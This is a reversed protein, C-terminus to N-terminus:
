PGRLRGISHADHRRLIGLAGIRAVRRGERGPHRRAAGVLDHHDARAVAAGDHRGAQGLPVQAHGQELPPALPGGVGQRHRQGVRGRLHLPAVVREPEEVEPLAVVEVHEGARAEPARREDVAVDRHARGGPDEVVRAPGRGKAPRCPVGGEAGVVIAGLCRETGLLGGVRERQRLHARPAAVGPLGPELKADGLQRNVEAVGGSSRHRLGQTM